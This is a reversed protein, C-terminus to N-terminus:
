ITNMIPRNNKNYYKKKTYQKNKWTGLLKIFTSSWKSMHCWNTTYPFTHNIVHNHAAEYLCSQGHSNELFHMCEALICHFFTSSIGQIAHRTFCVYVRLFFLQFSTHKKCVNLNKHKTCLISTPFTGWIWHLENRGHKPTSKACVIIPM